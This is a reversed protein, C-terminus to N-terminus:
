SIINITKDVKGAAQGFATNMYTEFPKFQTVTFEYSVDVYIDLTTQVESHGMISQVYKASAGSEFMRTAFTHRLVHCSFHPLTDVPVLKNM